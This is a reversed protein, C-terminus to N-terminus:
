GRMRGRASCRPPSIRRAAMAPRATPSGPRAKAARVLEQVTGFPANPATVLILPTVAVLCIPAFDRLPHYPVREMLIPNVNHALTSVLLTHGDPAARAVAETAILSNAGARNEVVVPQGLRATLDQAVVRAIVDTPGGAAFGVLMRVPREPWTQGRAPAPAHALAAAGMGGMAALLNRRHRM